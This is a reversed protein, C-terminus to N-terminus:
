GQDPPACASLRALLTELRQAAAQQAQAQVEEFLVVLEEGLPTLSAGGRDPGGIRTDVVPEGCTKNIADILLWARRYSMGMARAAASISGEAVIAKLLGIKGPGIQGRAGLDIKIWLRVDSAPHSIQKM